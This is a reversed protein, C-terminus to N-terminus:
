QPRLLAMGALMCLVGLAKQLTMAESFALTAGAVAVVLMGGNVSPIAISADLKSTALAHYALLGGGMMVGAVFIRLLAARAPWGGGARVLTAVGIPVLAALMLLLTGRPGSFAAWRLMLPYSGWLVATMLIWTLETSM